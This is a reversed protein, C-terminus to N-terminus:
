PVKSGCFDYLDVEAVSDSGHFNSSECHWRTKRCLSSSPPLILMPWCCSSGRNTMEGAAVLKDQNSGPRTAIIREKAPLEDSAESAPHHAKFPTPLGGLDSWSAVVHASVLSLCVTCTAVQLNVRGSIQWLDQMQHNTVVDAALKRKM